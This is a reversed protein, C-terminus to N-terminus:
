GYRKRTYQIAEELKHQEVFAKGLNNHANANGPECQLAARFQGIAEELKGQIGLAVGLNNHM